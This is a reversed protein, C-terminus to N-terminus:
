KLIIENKENIRRLRYTDSVSYECEDEKTDTVILSRILPTNIIISILNYKSLSEDVINVGHSAM